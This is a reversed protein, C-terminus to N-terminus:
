RIWARRVRRKRTKPAGAAQKGLLRQVYKAHAAADAYDYSCSGDAANHKFGLTGCLCQVLAAQNKSLVRVSTPAQKNKLKLLALLAYRVLPCASKAEGLRPTVLMEGPKGPFAYFADVVKGGRQTYFFHVQMAKQKDQVAERLDRFRADNGELLDYVSRATTQQEHTAYGGMQARVEENNGATKMDGVLRMVGPAHYFLQLGQRALEAKIAQQAGYVKSHPINRRTAM